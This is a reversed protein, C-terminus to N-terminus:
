AENNVVVYGMKNVVAIPIVPAMGMCGPIDQCQDLRNEFQALAKDRSRYESAWHHLEIGDCIIRAHCAFIGQPMGLFALQIPCVDRRTPQVAVIWFRVPM